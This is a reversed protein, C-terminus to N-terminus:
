IGTGLTETSNNIKVIWRRPSGSVNDVGLAPRMIRFQHTNTTAVSSTDLKVSSQGTYNSGTGPSICNINEGRDEDALNGGDGDEIIEFEQDLGDLVLAYYDSASGGPYYSASERRGTENKIVFGTVIGTIAGTTGSISVYGTTQKTVPDGTYITNAGATVPWESTKQGGQPYNVPIFGSRTEAAM